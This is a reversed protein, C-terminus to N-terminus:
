TKCFLLPKDDIKHIHYDSEHQSWYASTFHWACASSARGGRGPRMGTRHIREAEAPELSNYNKAVM